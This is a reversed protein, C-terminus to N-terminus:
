EGTPRKVFVDDIGAQPIVIGRGPASLHDTEVLEYQQGKDGVEDADDGVKGISQIDAGEDVEAGGIKEDDGEIEILFSMELDGPDKGNEIQIGIQEDHIVHFPELCSLIEQVERVEEHQGKNDIEFTAEGFEYEKVEYGPDGNEAAEPHAGHFVMVLYADYVKEGFEIISIKRDGKHQHGKEGIGDQTDVPVVLGRDQLFLMEYIGDVIGGQIPDEDEVGVFEDDGIAVIACQFEELDILFFIDYARGHFAKECAIMDVEEFPDFFIEVAVPGAGPLALQGKGRSLICSDKSEDVDDAEGVVIAAEPFEADEIEGFNFHRLEFQHLGFLFGLNGRLGFGSEKGIHAM